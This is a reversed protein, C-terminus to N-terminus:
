GPKTRTYRFLIFGHRDCNPKSKWEYSHCWCGCSCCQKFRVFKWTNKQKEGWYKEKKKSYLHLNKINATHWLSIMELQLHHWLQTEHCFLMFLDGAGELTRSGSAASCRNPERSGSMTCNASLADSSQVLTVAMVLWLWQSVPRHCLRDSYRTSGLPWLKVSLRKIHYYFHQPWPVFTGTTM